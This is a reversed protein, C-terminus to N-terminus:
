DLEPHRNDLVEVLGKLVGNMMDNNCCQKAYVNFFRKVQSDDSLYEKKIIETLISQMEEERLPAGVYLRLTQVFSLNGSMFNHYLFSVFEFRGSMLKRVIPVAKLLYEAVAHEYDNTGSYPNAHFELTLRNIEQGCRRMLLLDEITNRLNLISVDGRACQSALNMVMTERSSGTYDYSQPLPTLTIDKEAVELGFGTLSRYSDQSIVSIYSKNYRICHGVSNAGETFFLTSCQIVGKFLQNSLFGVPIVHFRGQAQDLMSGRRLTLGRLPLLHMTFGKERIDGLRNELQDCMSKCFDNLLLIYVDKGQKNIGSEAVSCLIRHSINLKDKVIEKQQLGYLACLRIGGERALCLLDTIEQKGEMDPFQHFQQEAAAKVDGEYMSDAVDFISPEENHLLDNDGVYRHPVKLDRYANFKRNCGDIMEEELFSTRLLSYRNNVDWMYPTIGVQCGVAGAKVLLSYYPTAIGTFFLKVQMQLFSRWREKNEYMDRLHFFHMESCEGNFCRFVGESREFDCKLFLKKFKDKVGASCDVRIAVECCPCIYVVVFSGKFGMMKIAHMINVTSIEDGLSGTENSVRIGVGIIAQGKVLAVERDAVSNGDMLLPPAVPFQCDAEERPLFPLRTVANGRPFQPKLCSFYANKYDPVRIM